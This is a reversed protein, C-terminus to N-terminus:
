RRRSAARIFEVFAPGPHLPTSTFEPHFQTGFFFPHKQAPLEMIEMLHGDPSVGSFILGKQTLMDVYDPNVEYRHRHRERIVNKKGYMRYAMSGKKLLAPYSGLRMSGGYVDKQLNKIQEPMVDILRDPTDKAIETSNARKLGLVNRAYEIVALQMGYCIGLYPIKKERAYCIVNIKGEVARAGFGGPVLIGDYHSLKRLVGSLNRKAEKSEHQDFDASDLWHIRAKKGLKGAAHKLAELISIYVDSLVFDGSKFYKGVVAINVASKAGRMRAVMRKWDSLGTAHGNKSRLGLLKLLTESLGDKEFNIPVDYISDVDPASIVHDERVGNAQAIKEKRKKDLPTSARAIIIDPQVGYSNLTRIATQTPKTKMEGIKSPVPLYSVMVFIVDAPNQLKLIRAAEIFIANQFEGVTGGIEIVTIDPKMKQVSVKIRRLIEETIHYTPEVCKGGYGLRREKDIVYKFVMGNTMYNEEPLHTDLFREYNGMDQDTELGSDLVFVEGHEVPNMTGADVNLYPDIKISSIKFGRASLIRGISASSVGKGVGSM